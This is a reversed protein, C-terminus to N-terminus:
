MCGGEVKTHLFQIYTVKKDKSVFYLIDASTIICDSIISNVIILYGDDLTEYKSSSSVRIPIGSNTYCDFWFLADFQNDIEGIFQSLSKLDTITETGGNKLKASVYWRNIIGGPRIQIGFGAKTSTLVHTDNDSKNEGKSSKYLNTCTQERQNLNLEWYSISEDPIISNLLSTNPFAKFDLTDNLYKVKVLSDSKTQGYSLKKDVWNNLVSDRNTQGFSQVCVLISILFFYPRVNNM